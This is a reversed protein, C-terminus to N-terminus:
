NSIVKLLDKNWPIKKRLIKSINNCKGFICRKRGNLQHVLSTHAFSNCLLKQYSLRKFTHSFLTSTDLGAVKSFFLLSEPVPTKRHIKCFKYSCRIKLVDEPSQKKLYYPTTSVSILLLQSILPYIVSCTTTYHYM